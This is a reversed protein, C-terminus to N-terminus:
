RGGDASHTLQGVGVDDVELVQLLLPLVLRVDVYLVLLQGPFVFHPGIKVVDVLVLDLLVLRLKQHKIVLIILLYISLAHASGYETIETVTRTLIKNYKEFQTLWLSFGFITRCISTSTLYCQLM